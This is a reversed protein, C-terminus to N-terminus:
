RYVEQPYFLPTLAKDLDMVPVMLVCVAYLSAKHSEHMITTNARLLWPKHTVSGTIVVYICCVCNFGQVDMQLPFGGVQVASFCQARYPVWKESGGVGRPM